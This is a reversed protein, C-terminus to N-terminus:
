VFPDGLEDVKVTRYAKTGLEAIGISVLRKYSDKYYKGLLDHLLKELPDQTFAAYYGAVKHVEPKYVLSSKLTGWVEMGIKAM